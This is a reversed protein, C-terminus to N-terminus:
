HGRGVGLRDRVISGTVTLTTGDVVVSRGVEEAPAAVTVGTDLYFTRRALAQALDQREIEHRADVMRPRRTSALFTEALSPPLLEDAVERLSWTSKSGQEVVMAAARLRERDEPDGAAAFARSFTEALIHTGLHPSMELDCDLFGRMWYDAVAGARRGAQFDVVRGSLFDTRREGGEFEAAKRLPSSRSFVNELLEITPRQATSFRFAEDQPFAWMMVRATENDVVERFAVLLHPRARDDMALSLRMALWSAAETATTDDGVAIQVVRERVPNRRVDQPVDQSPRFTVDIWDAADVSGIADRLAAELPKSSVLAGGPPQNRTARTRQPAVSYAFLRDLQMLAEGM